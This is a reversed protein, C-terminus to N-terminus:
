YLASIMTMVDLQAQERLLIAAFLTKNASLLVWESVWESVSQSVSQSASQSAPQSASQSAGARGGARGDARGGARVCARVWASVWESVWESVWMFSFIDRNVIWIFSNTICIDTNSIFNNRNLSSKKVHIFFINFICFTTTVNSNSTM